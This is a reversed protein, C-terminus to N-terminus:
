KMMLWVIMGGILAGLVVGCAAIGVFARRLDDLARDVQAHIQDRRRTQMAPLSAPMSVILAFHEVHPASGPDCHRVTVPTGVGIGCRDRVRYASAIV